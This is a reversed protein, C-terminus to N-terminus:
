GILVAQNLSDVDGLVLGLEDSYGVDSVQLYCGPQWEELDGGAAWRAADRRHVTVTYRQFKRMLWREPGDKRLKGLLAELGGDGASHCRYRVIVPVSDEDAILRFRVAATRFNVSLPSDVKLLNGIAHKDLDCGAYFHEFYRAFLARDLPDGDLAHLVSRSANEAQLLLGPPAAEPPIFVVVRGRKLLGERNCRGAAQAISDLGGLARYVLPFDLDVGAEVLQTSVVRTALGAKLREKIRRIVEARHAGCMLASLHLTGEPQHRSLLQFLDRADKRRNVICLVQDYGALEAALAAWSVPTRWDRPLEVKVRQLEQYLEDPSRVYPGDAMLERVTDLGRINHTPDFYERTTLAPQTATSLVVTVGYHQTLLRLADLIPQLFEPPLMQAEDLIVVSNILNHLKRCRLTRAAFLSEFFQVNTTVIIPADWNECALRSKANEESDAVEVNSHHEVVPDSALDRFVDRFTGGTQEIISTYPIVYIIRRKGHRQAHELAFALSSLTKGGGTPVTLTFAGPADAAKERCQRLIAARLQNVTSLTGAAMVRDGLADMHRNFAHLLTTIDPYGGRLEARDGDMFAETDLFDADVLCSFLMRVWLAFGESKGPVQRLDLNREEHAALIDAPPGAELAERLEEAARDGGLRHALSCEDSNWDSLGAHHGAILYALVNGPVGLRHCALLAGATSHTVKGPRGEIHADPDLGSAGALYRQFALRYKGLDHWRGALDAWDGSAFSEAFHRALRAVSRLHDDLDHIEFGHGARPRVHAAAKTM